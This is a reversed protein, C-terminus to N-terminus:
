MNGGKEKLAKNRLATIEDSFTGIGLDYAYEKPFLMIIGTEPLTIRIFEDKLNASKLDNHSNQIPVQESFSRLSPNNTAMSENSHNNACHIKGRNLLGAYELSSRFVRAVKPAVAPNINYNKTLLEELDDPLCEKGFDSILRNYLLPTRAAEGLAQKQNAYSSDVLHKGLTSFRYGNGNNTMIGFHVCAAMKAAILGSAESYGLSHAIVQRTYPGDGLESQAIKKALEIAQKLTAAPYTAGRKNMAIGGKTSVM